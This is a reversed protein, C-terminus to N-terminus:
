CKNRVLKEDTLQLTWRTPEAPMPFDSDPARARRRNEGSVDQEVALFIYRYIIYLMYTSLIYFIYSIDM